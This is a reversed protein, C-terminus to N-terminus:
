QRRVSKPCWGASSWGDGFIGIWEQRLDRRTCNMEDFFDGAGAFGFIDLEAKGAGEEENASESSEGSTGNLKDRM